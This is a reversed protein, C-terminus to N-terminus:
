WMSSLCGASGSAIEQCAFTVLLISLSTIDSATECVHLHRQKGVSRGGERMRWSVAVEQDAHECAPKTLICELM